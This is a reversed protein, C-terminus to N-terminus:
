GKATFLVPFSAAGGEASSPFKWRKVNGEMCQSLGGPGSGKVNASKVRGSPAVNVSVTMRVTSGAPAGRSAREYCRQLGNRNKAVTSQIDKSSLSQKKSSAKATESGTNIKTTSVGGKEGFKALLRKEEASLEDKNSAAQTRTDKTTRTTRTRKKSATTPKPEPEPEVEAAPPPEEFVMDNGIPAPTPVSTAALKTKLSANDAKLQEIEALALKNEARESGFYYGGLGAAAAGALGGVLLLVM